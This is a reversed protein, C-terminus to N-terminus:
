KIEKLIAKQGLRTTFQLLFYKKNDVLLTERGITECEYGKEILKEIVANRFDDQNIYTENLAVKIKDEKNKYFM